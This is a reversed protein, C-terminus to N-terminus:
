QDYVSKELAEKYNAWDGIDTWSKESVPYVGVKGGNNRVDDILQTMHYSKDYPIVEIVNANLVYMGTNVLFGFDPKERIRILNGGDDIDCIGYPVNYHKVSAVVTIDNTLRNHFNLIESYDAKIVIDSNSVFFCKGTKGQIYRLGGATGLPKKEEIYTIKYRPNFDEFYAKIMKGKHNLTIYFDRIGFEAFRDIIIEIVPRDGIPILPKPLVKTFPDLRTGKGGAMIVVPVNIKKRKIRINADKLFVDNWKLIDCITNNSDLIPLLLLKHEIFLNKVDDQSLDKAYLFKPSNNFIKAIDGDLSKGSLLYRRVDGDTLAGMLKNENDVIFLVKEATEDLRALTEKISFTRNILLQKNFM